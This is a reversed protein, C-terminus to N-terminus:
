THKKSMGCDFHFIPRDVRIERFPGHKLGAPLFILCSKTILHKEDDLWIEIEGCLDHPNETDTGFIGIIEDYTHAHPKTSRDPSKNETIAPLFWGAQVYFAGKIVDDNIHLLDIKDQPRYKASWSQQEAPMEMETIIYKGYKTEEM